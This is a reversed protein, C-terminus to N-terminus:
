RRANKLIFGRNSSISLSLPDLEQARSIEALAEDIRGRAVLYFAYQSHASAYNPNLEISRKFEEEAAAWNWNVYDVHGLAAHAEAVENDIELAKRAAIESARRAELPPLIGIMVTGLQNYCDALGAYAQAYNHDANIASEFYGIAKRLNQETHRNLFYRGQLYDDIAERAIIRKPVLLRQEAPTIKIHVEGAITRAVENQLDLVDRLDRDYDAAWLHSDSSAHIVQARVHVRDGVRHV